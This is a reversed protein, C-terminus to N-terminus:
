HLLFRTKKDVLSSSAGHRSHVADFNGSRDTDEPRGGLLAEDIWATCYPIQSLGREAGRAIQVAPESVLPLLSSARMRFSLLMM